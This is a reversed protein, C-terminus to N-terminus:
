FSPSLPYPLTVPFYLFHYPLTNFHLLPVVPFLLPVPSGLIAYTHYCILSYTSPPFSFNLCTSFPISFPLPCSSLPFIPFFFSLCILSGIQPFTKVSCGLLKSFDQVRSSLFVSVVYANSKLKM